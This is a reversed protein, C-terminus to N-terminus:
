AVKNACIVQSACVGICHYGGSRCHFCHNCWRTSRYQTRTTLNSHSKRCLDLSVLFRKCTKMIPGYYTNTVINEDIHVDAATDTVHIVNQSTYLTGVFRIPNAYFMLDAREAASCNVTIDDPQVAQLTSEHSFNIGVQSFVINRSVFHMLSNSDEDDPPYPKGLCNELSLVICSQSTDWV